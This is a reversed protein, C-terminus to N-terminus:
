PRAEKLTRSIEALVLERRSRRLVLALALGLALGLGAAIALATTVPAGAVLDALPDRQVRVPVSGPAAPTPESGLTSSSAASAAPAQAPLPQDLSHVAIADGRGEIELGAAMTVLKEIREAVDRAVSRPLVIGVSIRRISGPSTVIQEVRRSVEYNTELTTSLQGDERANNVAEADAVRLTPASRTHRQVAERRHVMVGAAQQSGAGSAPIVEQKTLRIEDSNLAVDISVIAQGPGFSRDLVEAVKRTLYEEVEKNVRLQGGAMAPTADAAASLTVGRQDVVTVMPPELGPAAAAVLRQIGLIRSEDLSAGPQLLVSVSAKPRSRDRKFLSAEALVLHVRALKVGEISMITRALEGQLARQYNIKQAYETTSLDNHDFLEFGVGGSLPVGRGMLALRTEHVADGPVRVTTGDADLRYSVKLRKLEAVVAAADRQAMDKFLVQYDRQLAWWAFAAAVLVILALGGLVGARRRADLEDWFARLNQALNM